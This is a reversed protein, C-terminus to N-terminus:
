GCVYMGREAMVDVDAWDFGAGASAYVRFSVPLLPILERDWRGMEGGSNWFPKVVAAFDGWKRDRLAQLFAPRQREELTPRVVSFRSQLERYLDHNFEIPDGLHLVTPKDSPPTMKKKKKKKPQKNASSCIPLDQKYQTEASSLLLFGAIVTAQESGILDGITFLQRAQGPNVNFNCKPAIDAPDRGGKGAIIEHEM